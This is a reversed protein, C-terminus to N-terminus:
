QHSIKTLTSSAKIWTSSDQSVQMNVVFGPAHLFRATHTQGFVVQVAAHLCGLILGAM